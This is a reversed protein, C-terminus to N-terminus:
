PRYLGLGGPLSSSAIRRVERVYVSRRVALVTCNRQLRHCIHVSQGNAVGIAMDSCRCCHYPIDWTCAGCMPGCGCAVCINEAMVEDDYELDRNRASCCKCVDVPGFVPRVAASLSCAALGSDM